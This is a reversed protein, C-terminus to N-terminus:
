KNNQITYKLASILSTINQIPPLPIDRDEIFHVIIDHAKNQFALKFCHNFFHDTAHLAFLNFVELSNATICFELVTRSNLEEHRSFIDVHQENLLYDVVRIYLPNAMPKSSENSQLWEGYCKISTLIQRMNNSLIQQLLIQKNVTAGASLLTLTKEKYRIAFAYDLASWGFLDDTTNISQISM